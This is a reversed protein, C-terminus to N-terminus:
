QICSGNCLGFVDLEGTTGGLALGQYTSVYVRGNFVTPPVFKTPTNAKIHSGSNYLEASHVNTADYAHLVAGSVNAQLCDSHSNSNEVVWLIGNTNTPTASISPTPM